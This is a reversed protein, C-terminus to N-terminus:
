FKSKISSFAKNLSDVAEELGKKLDQWSEEGANKLSSLQSRVEKKKAQLNDIQEHYKIRMEADAKDAKARM